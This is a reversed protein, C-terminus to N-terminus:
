SQSRFANEFDEKRVEYFLEPHGTNRLLTFRPTQQRAKKDTLMAEWIQDINFDNLSVSNLHYRKLTEKLRKAKRDPFGLLQQSLRAAIEMGVSIAYGHKIQFNSLKEIAHGATHGFNLISRYGSEKEDKEVINIKLHICCLIMEELVKSDRKVIEREKNEILHWLESDLTVAYKIVEAMGNMFEEESLTQLFELDTFVAQPQYFAGILNKGESHNVGVKGGVSSDVQAILSTPLHILPIGRYYTAAVYGALDGTVGGGLAIIVSDRGAKNKILQDELEEKQLRNKNQEGVPFTINGKFTPLTGFESLIREGFLRSINSDSIVFIFHNTFRQGLFSKLHSWLNTGIHIPIGTSPTEIHLRITQM